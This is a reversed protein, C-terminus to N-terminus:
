QNLIKATHASILYQPYNKSICVWRGLKKISTIESKELGLHNGLLHRLAHASTSLPYIVFHTAETLLLRTNKYDTPKHLLVALTTRTHRGQSAIDNILNWIVKLKPLELSEFDDFIVFCDKFEDISPYDEIISDISLRKPKGIKMGDLTDDDDLKSILYIEREPYMKKYSEALTKAMYSKGSGSMGTIYYVDRKEPNSSVILNFTSDEPLTISSKSETDKKLRNYVSKINDNELLDDEKIDKDIAKQLKSMMLIKEKPKLGKIEKIYNLPNIDNKIKKSSSKEDNEDLFLIENNLRGGKVIALARDEKKGDFSLSPM